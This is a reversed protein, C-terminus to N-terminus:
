FELLVGWFDNNMERREVSLVRVRGEAAGGMGGREVEEEMRGEFRKVVWGAVV